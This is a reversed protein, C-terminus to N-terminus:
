FGGQSQQQLQCGSVRPWNCSKPEKPQLHHSCCTPPWCCRRWRTTTTAFTRTTAATSALGGSLRLSAASRRDEPNSPMSRWHERRMIRGDGLPERKRCASANQVSPPQTRALTALHVRVHAAVTAVHDSHPARHIALGFVGRTPLLEALFRHGVHTGYSYFQDWSTSFQVRFRTDLEEVCVFAMWAM